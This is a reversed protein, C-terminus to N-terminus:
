EIQRAVDINEDASQLRQSGRRDPDLDREFVTHLDAAVEFNCYVTNAYHEKGFALMSYTKGIQRAGYILLPKRNVSNKWQLLRQEVLRKM